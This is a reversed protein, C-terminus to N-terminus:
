VTGDSRPGAICLNDRNAVTEDYPICIYILLKLFAILKIKKYIMM